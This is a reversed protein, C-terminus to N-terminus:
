SSEPFTEDWLDIMEQLSTEAKEKARSLQRCYGTDGPGEIDFWQTEWRFHGRERNEEIQAILCWGGWGPATKAGMTYQAVAGSQDCCRYWREPEWHEPAGDPYATERREELERLLRREVAARREGRVPHTKKSACKAGRQAGCSPCDVALPTIRGSNVGEIRELELREGDM